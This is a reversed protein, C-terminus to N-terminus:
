CLAFILPPLGSSLITRTQMALMGGQYWSHICSCAKHRGISVLKLHFLHFLKFITHRHCSLALFPCLGTEFWGSVIFLNLITFLSHAPVGLRSLFDVFAVRFHHLKIATLSNAFLVLLEDFFADANSFLLRRLIYLDRFLFLRLQFFQLFFLSLYFGFQLEDIAKDILLRALRAVVWLALIESAPDELSLPCILEHQTEFLILPRNVVQLHSHFCQICM